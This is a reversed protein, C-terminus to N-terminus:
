QEILAGNELRYRRDAKKALAEDHTVIFFAGQNKRTYDFLIDTAENATKRDLNGTPEDAFLLKPKKTLVRAISLRQQQGGSLSSSDQNLIHAIGLSRLLESDITTGCLLASVQLNERASFGKFLYHQQFILGIAERRLKALEAVKLAYIDKGFAEARGEQPKLFSSLIHLLTSKGSGSVGLVAVSEGAKIELNVSKFLPYDFAHAINEAKLLTM